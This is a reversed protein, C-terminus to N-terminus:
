WFLSKRQSLPVYQDKVILKDQALLKQNAGNIEDMQAALAEVQRGLASREKELKIVRNALEDNGEETVDLMQETELVTNDAKALKENQGRAAKAILELQSLVSRDRIDNSGLAKGTENLKATLLLLWREMERRNMDALKQMDGAVAHAVEFSFEADAKAELIAVENRPNQAIVSKARNLAGLSGGYSLAAYRDLTYRGEREVRKSIDQLYFRQASMIELAKQERLLQPLAQQASEFRGRAVRRILGEHARELDRFAYPFYTQAQFKKLWGFNEVSGALLSDSRRKNAEARDLAEAAKALFSLTEEGMSDGFFLSASKNIKGPELKFQNYYRRAKSLASLASSMDDPAFAGVDNAQATAVRKEMADMRESVQTFLSQEGVRQESEQMLKYSNTACGSLFLLQGLLVVFVVQPIRRSRDMVVGSAKGANRLFFYPIFLAYAINQFTTM